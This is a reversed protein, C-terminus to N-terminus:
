AQVLARRLSNTHAGAIKKRHSRFLFAGAIGAALLAGGTLVKPQVVQKEIKRLSALRSAKQYVTEIIAGELWAPPEIGAEPLSELTLQLDKESLPM